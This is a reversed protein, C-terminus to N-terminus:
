EVKVPQQAPAMAAMWHALAAAPCSSSIFRSMTAVLKYKIAEAITIPLEAGINKIASNFRRMTQMEEVLSYTELVIFKLRRIMGFDKLLKIRNSLAFFLVSAIRVVEKKRQSKGILEADLLFLNAVFKKNFPFRFKPCDNILQSVICLVKMMAHETQHYTAPQDLTQCLKNFYKMLPRMLDDCKILDYSNGDKCLQALLPLAEAQEQSKLMRSLVTM